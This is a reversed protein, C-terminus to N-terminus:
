ADWGMGHGRNGMSRFEDLLEQEIDDVRGDATATGALAHALHRKRSLDLTLLGEIAAVVDERTPRLRRLTRELKDFDDAELNGPLRGADRLLAAEDEAFHLIRRVEQPHLFEDSRASAILLTLPAALERRLTTYTSITPKAQRPPANPGDGSFMVLRKADLVVESIPLIEAFWAQADEVEGDQSIFCVIRDLRFSRLAHREHCEAQLYRVGDQEVVTRTTIRRQTVQGRADRYEIMLFYPELIFRKAGTAQPEDDGAIPSSPRTTFIEPAPDTARPTRRLLLDLLGM